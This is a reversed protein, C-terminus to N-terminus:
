VSEVPLKEKVKRLEDENTLDLRLPTISVYNNEVAWRDTGEEAADLPTVTFWYHKRGMPDTGPVITGDYLRVSQRTWKLETPQPPFNVNYLSLTTDKLLLTLTKEVFPELANFDPETKGVPTSLAIGKIGLLVAQKAAALTGSHWMSNGLNPGMNIGSLVVDTHGWLHTGLAVCDAPTGNVRYAEVGPFEIPSKKYSLPRSHTVAHGMSSQEVDPAVVRVEGFKKAIQALAAIGPSYIGDDNTILIRM